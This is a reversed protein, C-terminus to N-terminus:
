NSIDYGKRVIYRFTTVVEPIPKVGWFSVRPSKDTPRMIELVPGESDWDKGSTRHMRWMEGDRRMEPDEREAIKVRM